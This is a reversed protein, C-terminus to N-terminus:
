QFNSIQYKTKVLDQLETLLHDYRLNEILHVTVWQALRTFAWCTGVHVNRHEVKGQAEQNKKVSTLMHLLVYANVARTSKVMDHAIDPNNELAAVAFCLKVYREFLVNNHVTQAAVEQYANGMLIDMQVASHAELTELCFGFEMDCPSAVLQRDRTYRQAWKVVPMINTQPNHKWRSKAVQLQMTLVRQFKLTWAEVVADIVVRCPATVM